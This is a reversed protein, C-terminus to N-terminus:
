EKEEWNAVSQIHIIGRRAENPIQNQRPLMYRGQSTARGQVLVKGRLCLLWDM